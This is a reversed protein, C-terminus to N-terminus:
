NPIMEWGFPVHCPTTFTEIENTLINRASTTAIICSKLLEQGDVEKAILELEKESTLLYYDTAVNEGSTATIQNPPNNVLLRSTPSFSLGYASVFGYEIIDGTQVDIIASSQCNNGCSWTSVSFTGAFNAGVADYSRVILDEFNRALPNTSFNISAAVSSDTSTPTPFMDFTPTRVSSTSADLSDAYIQPRADERPEIDITENTADFLVSALMVMVLVIILVSIKSGIEKM